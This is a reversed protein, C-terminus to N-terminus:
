EEIGCGEVGLADSADQLNTGVVTFERNAIDTFTAADGARAADRLEGVVRVGNRVAREYDAFDDALEEPPTLDAIGSQFSSMADVLTDFNDAVADLDAANGDNVTNENLDSCLSELESRFADATMPGSSSGNSSDSGSTAVVVIVVLAAVAALVLWVKPPRLWPSGGPAVGAAGGVPAIPMPMPQMAMPVPPPTSMDDVSAVGHDSVHVTWGTGDWWRQQHRAHPDPFWGPAASGSGISM